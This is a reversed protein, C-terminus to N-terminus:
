FTDQLIVSLAIVFPSGMKIKAGTNKKGDKTEPCEFQNFSGFDPERAIQKIWNVYYFVDVYVGPKKPEACGEGWSVIGILEFGGGNNETKRVLPGGSDGYCSDIQGREYGACLMGDVVYDNLWDNENCQDDDIIPVMAEQFLHFWADFKWLIIHYMKFKVISFNIRRGFRRLKSYM